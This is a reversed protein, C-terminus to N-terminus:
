HQVTIRKVQTEIASNETSTKSIKCVYIGQPLSSTDLTLINDTIKETHILQGLVSYLELKFTATKDTKIKVTTSTNAPNPFLNVNWSFTPITTNTIGVQSTAIGKYFSLGGQYNGLVMDLYGDNNIDAACPATRTGQFIHEFASDALNFTGTLNGDIGNYFRLYGSEEGVLLKTTGNQKFLFPHSYGVFYGPRNVKIGGWYHTISDMSPIATNTNGVHHYYALQGNRGGIVIDNKQDGDVDVIQPTAFDGVDIVRNNSNNLNTQSLVFNASDGLLATNEFYHLKGDYGGIIMDADGDADLDGFAPVMNNIGLTSLNAYDTTILEFAPNSLTGINKFLAIKTQFGFGSPTIAM